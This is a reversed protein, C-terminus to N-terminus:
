REKNMQFVAKQEGLLTVNSVLTYYAGSYTPDQPTPFFYHKQGPKIQFHRGPVPGGITVGPRQVVKIEQQKKCRCRTM